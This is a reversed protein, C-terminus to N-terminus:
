FKEMEQAQPAEQRPKPRCCTACCPCFNALIVADMNAGSSGFTQTFIMNFPEGERLHDKAPFNLMQSRMINQGRFTMSYVEGRYNIGAVGANLRSQAASHTLQQSVQDAAFSEILKAVDELTMNTKPSLWVSMAVKGELTVWPQDADDKYHPTVSFTVSSTKSM